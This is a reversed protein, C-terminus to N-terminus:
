QVERFTDENILIEYDCCRMDDRMYVSDPEYEGFHDIFDDVVISGDIDDIINGESDVLTDDGRYYTVSVQRYDPFDGFEDPAIVYIGSRKDTEPPRVTGYGNAYITKTYSVLDPKNLRNNIAPIEEVVHTDETKEEKFKRSFVEKVSDIEEQAIQEYKKKVVFWTTVSGLAAGVCFWIVKNM